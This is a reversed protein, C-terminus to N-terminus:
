KSYLEVILREDVPADVEDREPLRLIKCKWNQPDLSMWAPVTHGELSEALAKFMDLKLSRPRVAVEDGPSVQYSPIDVKHGNVAIHGHRVIQRAERRSRAFGARYVVNDLRRELLQMLMKGTVGRVKVAKAFYNRFQREGVGYFRKAKQKERLQLGYESPRRVRGHMGPPAPRKELTCKTFCKEGKLYLKQGERRCLRCVPGTYRSM